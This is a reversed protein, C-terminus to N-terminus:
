QNIVELFSNDLGLEALSIESDGITVKNLLEGLIMVGSSTVIKSSLKLDSIKTDVRVSQSPLKSIIDSLLLDKPNYDGSRNSPSVETVAEGFVESSYKNVIISDLTLDGVSTPTPDPEFVVEVPNTYDKLYEHVKLSKVVSVPYRVDQPTVERIETQM